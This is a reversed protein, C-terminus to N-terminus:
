TREGIWRCRELLDTGLRADQDTLLAEVSGAARATLEDFMDLDAPTCTRLADELSPIADSSTVRARAARMREAGVMKRLQPYLRTGRVANFTRRVIPNVIVAAENAYLDDAPEAHNALAADLGTFSMALRSAFDLDDIILEFPLVLLRDAPVVQQLKALILAYDSAGAIDSSLHLAEGFTAGGLKGLYLVEQCYHSYARRIPARVLYVVRMAPSLEAARDLADLHSPFTYQASADLWLGDGGAYLGAYWDHGRDLRSSFYNPEKISPSVIDPHRALRAALRTTGSRAAGALVLDPGRPTV